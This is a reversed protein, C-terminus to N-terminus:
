CSSIENYLYNSINCYLCRPLSKKLLLLYHHLRTCFFILYNKIKKGEARTETTVFSWLEVKWHLFNSNKVNKMLSNQSWFYFQPPNKWSTESKKKYWVRLKKFNGFGIYVYWYYIIIVLVQVNKEARCLWSYQLRVQNWLLPRM